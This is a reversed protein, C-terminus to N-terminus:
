PEGDRWARGPRVMCGVAGTALPHGLRAPLGDYRGGAAVPQDEGLATSRVEFLVGDYYGFGRAFATALRRRGAGAEGLAALRKDWAALVPALPGGGGGALASVAALAAAPEDVIALYRGILDAEAASLRPAAGAAARRALRHVIDGASRGGVPEIAALAWIEELVAAAEDEGLGRLLGALAGAEGEGGTQATDLERALRWPHAFAARLRAAVPEAIGVAALFAAFLAVDGFLISLDERGGARAAEWALSAMAADASPADGAEYAELGIQLFQETRGSGAPAVRFAPGEYAYRGSAAGGAVHAQACALTFDPRLCFEERGPGQVLFLRERLAEGALDLYLSLPEAIPANFRAGGAATFPARVADLVAPPVAAELRM